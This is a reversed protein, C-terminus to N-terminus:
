REKTRVAQHPRDVGHSDLKRGENHIHQLRRLRLLFEHFGFRLRSHSITVRARWPLVGVESTYCFQQMAAGCVHEIESIQRPTLVSRWRELASETLPGHVNAKWPESAPALTSANRQFALMTRDYSEGLTPLLRQLTKEPELVLDEYRVVHFRQDRRHRNAVFVDNKWRLANAVADDSTWPVELLSAVVARPDRVIMLFHCGPYWLRLLDLFYLHAPTKEGWRAKGRSHAYAQLIEALITGHSRTGQILLSQYLMQQELDLAAFEPGQSFEAWYAEFQQVDALDATRFRLWWNHYHTEPAIAIRPHSSLM